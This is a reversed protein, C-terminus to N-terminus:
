PTAPLPPEPVWSPCVAKVADYSAELTAYKATVDADATVKATQASTVADQATDRDATTYPIYTDPTMSQHKVIAQAITSDIDVSKAAQRQAAFDNKDNELVDRLSDLIARNPDALLPLNSDYGAIYATVEAIFWAADSPMGGPTTGLFQGYMFGAAVMEATREQLADALEEKRGLWLDVEDLRKQNDELTEDATEQTVLAADYNVAADAYAAKLGDVAGTTANPFEVEESAAEFQNTYTTYSAVLANVEDQFVQKANAAVEADAYYTTFQAARWYSVGDRIAKDRDTGYGLVADTDAVQIVRYLLDAEPADPDVIETLFIHKDLLAGRETCCAYLTYQPKDHAETINADITVKTGM